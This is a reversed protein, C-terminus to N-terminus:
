FGLSPINRLPLSHSSTISKNKSFISPANHCAIIANNDYHFLDVTSYVAFKGGDESSKRTFPIINHLSVWERFISLDVIIWFQLATQKENFICYIYYDGCGDKLIKDIETKHASNKSVCRITLEKVMIHHYDPYFKRVRAGVSYEKRNKDTVFFDTALRTDSDRDSLRVNRANPFNKYLVEKQFPEAKRALKAEATIMSINAM